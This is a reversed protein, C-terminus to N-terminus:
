AFGHRFDSLLKTFHARMNQFQQTLKFNFPQRILLRRSYERLEPGFYDM